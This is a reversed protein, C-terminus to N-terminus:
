LFTKYKYKYQIEKDQEESEKIRKQSVSDPRYM